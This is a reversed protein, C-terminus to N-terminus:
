YVASGEGGVIEKLFKQDEKGKIQTIGMGTFLHNENMLDFPKKSKLHLRLKSPHQIVHIDTNPLFKLLILPLFFRRENQILQDAQKNKEIIRSLAIFQKFLEQFYM